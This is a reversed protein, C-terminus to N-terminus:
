KETARQVMKYHEAVYQTDVDSGHPLSNYLYLDCHGDMNNGSITDFSHPMGSLSAAINMGDKFIVVARPSWQWTGFLKLMVATDEATLAEIDCHNFGGLMRVHFQVETEYDRIIFADGRKLLYQGDFFWDVLKGSKASSIDEGPMVAYLRPAYGSIAIKEGASFWDNITMYNYNIINMASVNFKKSISNATDGYQVIYTVEPWQLVPQPKPNIEPIQTPSPSPTQEPHITPTPPIPNITPVPTPQITPIPTTQPIYKIYLQQGVLILDTTLNNIRKIDEISTGFKRSILWLTDGSQVIYNVYGSINIKQGIYIIDGIIKNQERIDSISVGFTQSIKWLTDGKQVSYSAAYVNVSSAMIVFITLVVILFKKFLVFYKFM